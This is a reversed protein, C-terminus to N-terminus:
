KHYGVFGFNYKIGISPYIYIDAYQNHTYVPSDDYGDMGEGFSLNGQFNLNILFRDYGRFDKIAYDIGVNLPILADISQDRGQDYTPRKGNTLPHYTESVRNRMLGIGAGFYIGNIVDLFPTSRFGKDFFAGLHAKANLSGTAYHNNFYRLYPGNKDGGILHGIQAEVGLSVFPILYYDATGYVAMSNRSENLDGFVRTIGAGAGLSFKYFNEQSFAQLSISVCLILIYIKKM